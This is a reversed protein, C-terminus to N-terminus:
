QFLVSKRIYVIILIRFINFVHQIHVTFALITIEVVASRNQHTERSTDDNM